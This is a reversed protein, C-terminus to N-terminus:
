LNLFNPSMSTVLRKLDILSPAMFTVLQNKPSHIGGFGIFTCPKPGDAGLWIFEYPKTAHMAGLKIFKRPKPGGM